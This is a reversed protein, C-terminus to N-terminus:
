YNIYNNHKEILVKQLARNNNADLVFGRRLPHLILLSFCRNEKKLDEYSMEETMFDPTVEVVVSESDLAIVGLKDNFNKVQDFGKPERNLNNDQYYLIVNNYLM